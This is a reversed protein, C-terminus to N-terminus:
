HFSKYQVKISQLRVRCQRKCCVLSGFSVGEREDTLGSIVDALSNRRVFITKDSICKFPDFSYDFNGSHLITIRM